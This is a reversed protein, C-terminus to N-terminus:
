GPSRALIIAGPMEEDPRRGLCLRAQQQRLGIAFLLGRGNALLKRTSDTEEKTHVVELFRMAPHDLLTDLEDGLWTILGVAADGDEDVDSAVVPVKQSRTRGSGLM